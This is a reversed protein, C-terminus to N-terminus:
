NKLIKIIEPYLSSSIKSHGLENPHSDGKIIELDNFSIGELSPLLDHHIFGLEKSISKMKEHISNFPYYELFHIDPIVTMLVPINTSKSYESLKILSNKMELFSTNDEKYLDLYYSKLDIGSKSFVKKITISLTAVLQSNQVFWNSSGIPLAEADNIFYNVVILEPNLDDLNLLFNNVYRYTNYNGISANLVKFELSDLTLQRQIKQPYSDKNKIGWGLSISSGLFLIKKDDKNFEDSRMGKSNLKVEVGQLVSSKNNLHRHGLLSDKVKLEKAYRWMEIDYNNMDSNIVRLIVEILLISIIIVLFQGTLLKIKNM